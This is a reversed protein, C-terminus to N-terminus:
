KLAGSIILGFLMFNLGLTLGMWFSWSIDNSMDIKLWQKVVDKVKMEEGRRKNSEQKQKIRVILVRQMFKIVRTSGNM